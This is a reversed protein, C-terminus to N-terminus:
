APKRRRSIHSDAIKGRLNRPKEPVALIIPTQSSKPAWPHRVSKHTDASKARIGEPQRAGAPHKAKLSSPHGRIARVEEVGIDARDAKASVWQFVFGPSIVPCKRVGMKEEEGEAKVGSDVGRAWHM